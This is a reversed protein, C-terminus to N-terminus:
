EQLYGYAFLLPLTLATSVFKERTELKEKWEMDARICIPGKEFRIPNGLIAHVETRNLSQDTLCSFKCNDINLNTMINALITKPEKVFDEYRVLQYSPSFSKLSYTLVNRVSWQLSSQATNQTPMYDEKEQSQTILKKRQWSYAVARSDRVLHIINLETNKALRLAHLYSPSKSSDLIIRTNSIKHVANYLKSLIDVYINLERSYKPTRLWPIAISPTFIARDVSLKLRMIEDANVNHMGGFAEDFVDNWFRCHKFPTHCSCLLNKRFGADWVHDLEGVSVINEEQGLIKDLLTSGSRGAGAIALIKVTTM